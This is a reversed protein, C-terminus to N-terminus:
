PSKRKILDFKEAKVLRLAEQGDKAITVAFGQKGLIDKILGQIEVDDDVYLIKEM